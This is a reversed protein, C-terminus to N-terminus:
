QNSKKVLNFSFVVSCQLKISQLHLIILVRVSRFTTAAALIYTSM